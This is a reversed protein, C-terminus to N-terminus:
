TMIQQRWLPFNMNISSLAACEHECSLKEFANRFFCCVTKGAQLRIRVHLTVEESLSFHQPNWIRSCTKGKQSIRQKFSFFHPLTCLRILSNAHSFVKLSLHCLERYFQLRPLFFWSQNSKCHYVFDWSHDASAPNCGWFQQTFIICPSPKWLDCWMVFVIKRTHIKFKRGSGVLECFSFLLPTRYGKCGVWQHFPARVPQKSENSRNDHLSSFWSTLLGCM